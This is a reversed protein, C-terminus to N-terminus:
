DDGGDGDGDDDRDGDDDDRDGRRADGTDGGSRYGQRLESITLKGDSNHDSQSLLRAAGRAGFASVLEDRSLVRDSNTDVNRFSASQAFAPTLFACLLVIACACSVRAGLRAFLSRATWGAYLLVHRM